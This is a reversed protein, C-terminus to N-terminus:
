RTEYSTISGASVTYVVAGQTDGSPPDLSISFLGAPYAVGLVTGAFDASFVLTLKYCGLAITGNTTRLVATPTRQTSSTSITASVYPILRGTTPDVLAKFEAAKGTTGSTANQDTYKSDTAFLATTLLLTALLALFPKRKM